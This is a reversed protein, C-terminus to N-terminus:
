LVSWPSKPTFSRPTPTPSTDHTGLNTKSESIKYADEVWQGLNKRGDDSVWDHTKYLSSAPKGNKLSILDLPNKGPSDTEKKQTKVSHIRVGLLANGKEISQEIEYKVWPRESTEAGILVVTVSTNKLQDKIWSKVAEDGKKKIKEWEVSDIIGYEDEDALLNFNRVQGARWADREYHFSYFVKRSM